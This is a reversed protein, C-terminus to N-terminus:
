FGEDVLDSYLASGISDYRLECTQARERIFKTDSERLRRCQPAVVDDDGVKRKIRHEIGSCFLDFNIIIIYM